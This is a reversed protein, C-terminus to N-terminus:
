KKKKQSKEAAADGPEVAGALLLELRTRMDKVREPQTMALNNKESIDDALHYLELKEITTKEDSANEADKESANLLLKWDGM